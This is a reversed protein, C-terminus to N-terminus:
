ARRGPSRTRAGAPSGGGRRRRCLSRACARGGGPGTGPSPRRGRQPARQGEDPNSKIIPLCDGYSSVTLYSSKLHIVRCRVRCSGRTGLVEVGGGESEVAGAHLRQVFRLTVVEHASGIGEGTIGADLPVRLVEVDEATLAVHVGDEGDQPAEATLRLLREGVPQGLGVVGAGRVEDVDDVARAAADRDHVVLPERVA